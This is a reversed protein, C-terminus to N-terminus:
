NCLLEKIANIRVKRRNIQRRKSRAIRRPTALSEGTKPNEPSNFIRVGGDILRYDSDQECVCWGISGIGIDFAAVRM